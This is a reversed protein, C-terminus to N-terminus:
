RHAARKSTMASFVWLATTVFGVIVALLRVTKEREREQKALSRGSRRRKRKELTHVHTYGIEGLSHASRGDYYRADHLRFSEGM